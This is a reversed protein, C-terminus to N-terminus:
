GVRGAAGVDNIKVQALDDRKKSLRDQPQISTAASQGDHVDHQRDDNKSNSDEFYAQHDTAVLTDTAFEMGM